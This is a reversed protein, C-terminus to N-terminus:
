RALLQRPGAAAPAFAISRTPFAVTSARRLETVVPRAYSHALVLEVIEAGPRSENNIPEDTRVNTM